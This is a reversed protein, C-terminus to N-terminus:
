LRALAGPGAFARLVVSDGEAPLAFRELRSGNWQLLVLPDPAEGAHELDEIHDFTVEIRNPTIVHIEAGCDRIRADPELPTGRFLNDFGDLMRATLPEIVLSRPGSRTIRHDGRAGSLPTFCRVRGPATDALFSRPYLFVFPDSEAILFVRPSKVGDLEATRGVDEAGRATQAVIHIVRLSVLPALLLHQVVLVAGGVRRPWGRSFAHRIVVGVLAAFGIDPIVLVRGGPLGTSGVLLGLLAAPVLWSLASREELPIGRVLAYCLLVGVAGGAVLGGVHATSGASVPTGLLADALLMPVRVVAVRLFELPSALPDHYAGSSRAGFGLVRYIGLYAAAVFLSPLARVFSRRQLEYVLFFPIIALAAESGSLAVILLLPALLWGKGGRTHVLLAFAAPVAGVLVHRASLWAYPLVHASRFAFVALAITASPEPLFRRFLLRAAILLALLWVLSHVHYGFPQNGFLRTDLAFLLGTLPRLFHLKLDPASWWPLMGYTVLRHNEALDGSAFRFLDLPSRGRRELLAHFGYDDTAFRVTFSAAAIAMAVLIVGIGVRRKGLWSAM